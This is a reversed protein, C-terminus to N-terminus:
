RRSGKTEAIAQDTTPPGSAAASVTAFVERYLRGRRGLPWSASRAVLYKQVDQPWTREFRPGHRV